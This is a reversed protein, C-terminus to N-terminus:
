THTIAFHTQPNKGFPTAVLPTSHSYSQPSDRYNIVLYENFRQWSLDASGGNLLTFRVTHENFTVQLGNYKDQYCDTTRMRQPIKFGKALHEGRLYFGINGKTYHHNAVSAHNLEPQYGMMQMIDARSQAENRLLKDQSTLLTAASFEKPIPLQIFEFPLSQAKLYANLQKSQLQTLNQICM